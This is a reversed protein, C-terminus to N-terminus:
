ERLGKIAYALAWRVYTAHSSSPTKANLAAEIPSVAPRAKDGIAVVAMAAQLRVRPDDHKLADVIIPLAEKERGLRCLAEAAAIRVILPVHIGSDYLWRKHRPLGTGHDSYFFVITNEALGDEELQGLLEGTRHDMATILDYFRAVDRRVVPTDPYYPPLPAM